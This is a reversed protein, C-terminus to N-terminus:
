GPPGAGVTRSVASVTARTGVRSSIRRLWAGFVVTSVSFYGMVALWSFFFAPMDFMRSATRPVAHYQAYTGVYYWTFPWLVFPLLTAVVGIGALRNVTSDKGRRYLAHAVMYSGCGIAIMVVYFGLYFFSVGPDMAPREVWEWWYMCEWAPWCILLFLGAPAFMLSFYGTMPGMLRHTVLHKEGVLYKKSLIALIQGAAFAGPLDVQVM